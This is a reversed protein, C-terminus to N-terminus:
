MISSKEYEELNNWPWISNEIPKKQSFSPMTLFNIHTVIHRLFAVMNKRSYNVWYHVWKFLKQYVFDQLFKVYTSKSKDVESTFRLRQVKFVWSTMKLLLNDLIRLQLQVLERPCFVPNIYAAKNWWRICYCICCVYILCVCYFYLSVFLVFWGLM